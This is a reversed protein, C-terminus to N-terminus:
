LPVWPPDGIHDIQEGEPFRTFENEHCGAGYREVHWAVHDGAGADPSCSSAVSDPHQPSPAGSLAGVSAMSTLIAVLVVAAIHVRRSSGGRQEVRKPSDDASTPILQHITM